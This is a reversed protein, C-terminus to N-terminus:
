FVIGLSAMTIVRNTTAGIPKIYDAKVNFIYGIKESNLTYSVLGGAKAYSLNYFACNNKYMAVPEYNPKPGTYQYDSGLSLNYGGNVKILLSSKKFKFHKGGFVEANAYTYNYTSVPLYYEEQRMTFNGDIGVIWDYGRKDDAGFIHDYGFKVVTHTYDSMPNEADIRWYQMTNSESVITVVYETGTTNRIQGDVWIHDSKSDGFLVDIKAEIVSGKTSGEPKPLRPESKVNNYVLDYGAEVLLDIDQHYAYQLRGGYIQNKFMYNKLGTNGGVVTLTSEGLGKHIYAAQDKWNNMNSPDAEEASNRIHANLGIYHNGLRVVAGPKVDIMYKYTEARPDIQKAGVKNEYNLDVGFSVKDWIVPSALKASLLYEQKNWHNNKTTDIPYYPMDEDVDYMLVNNTCGKEKINNYSFNGWILFKGLYAAGSTNASIQRIKDAGQQTHFEGSTYDFNLGLDKYIQFPKFSLGATNGSGMWPTNRFNMEKLVQNNVVNGAQTCIAGLGLLIAILTIRKM